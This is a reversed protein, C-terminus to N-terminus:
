KVLKELKPLLEEYAAAGFLGKIQYWDVPPLETGSESEWYRWNGYCVQADFIADYAKDLGSIGDGSNYKFAEVDASIYVDPNTRLSIQRDIEPKNYTVLAMCMRAENEDYGQAKIKELDGDLVMEWDDTDYPWSACLERYKGFDVRVDINYGKSEWYKLLQRIGERNRNVVPMIFEKFGDSMLYIRNVVTILYLPLKYDLPEGGNLDSFSDISFIDELIKHDFDSSELIHIAEEARNALVLGLLRMTNDNM